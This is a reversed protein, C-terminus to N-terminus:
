GRYPGGTGDTIAIYIEFAVMCAFGMVPISSLFSLFTM